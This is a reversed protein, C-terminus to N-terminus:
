FAKVSALFISPKHYIAQFYVNKVATNVLFQAGLFDGVLRCFEWGILHKFCKCHISLSEFIFGCSSFPLIAFRDPWFFVESFRSLM